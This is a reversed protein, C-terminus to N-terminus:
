SCHQLSMVQQILTNDRTVQKAGSRLVQETKFQKAIWGIALLLMVTTLQIGTTAAIQPSISSLVFFAVCWVTMAPRLAVPAALLCTACPIVLLTLDYTLWHPSCLVTAIWMSTWQMVGDFTRWRPGQGFIQRLCCGVGAYGILSLGRVWWNTSGGSLLVMAGYLCHTRHTEYGPHHVYEAAQVGFEAYQWCVDWGMGLCLIAYVGAFAVIGGMFRWQRQWAMCAAVVILWQPKVALLGVVLGARFPHNTRLLFWSGSIALMGLTAKQSSALNELFPVYLTSFSMLWSWHISPTTTTRSDTARHSRALVLWSLYFCVVILMAWLSAAVHFPLWSFPSVLLYYCPPYVMPLYRSEDWAFGIIHPDHQIKQIYPTDYLRRVEGQDVVWGGIWEQLFDGAYPHASGRHQVFNPSLIYLAVVVLLSLLCPTRLPWRNLFCGMLTKAATAAPELM